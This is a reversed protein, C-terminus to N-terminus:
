SAKKMLQIGKIKLGNIEYDWQCLKKNLNSVHTYITADLVHDARWVRSLLQDKTLEFPHNKLLFYLIKFEIFTLFVEKNNVYTQLKHLDITLNGCKNLNNNKRHFEIGSKIRVVLEDPPAERGIFDIAGLEFSRMRNMDSHDSSFFFIPCSNYHSNSLIKEYLTFGNMNPMHIDSIIASYSHDKISSLFIEPELFTQVMFEEQLLFNVCELNLHNDDVYAIVSKLLQGPM